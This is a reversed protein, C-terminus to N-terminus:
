AWIHQLLWLLRVVLLQDHHRCGQICTRPAEQLWLLRATHQRGRCAHVVALGQRLLLLLLGCVRVRETLQAPCDTPKVRQWWLAGHQGWLWRQCIAHHEPLLQWRGWLGAKHWLAWWRPTLQHHVAVCSDCSCRTAELHGRGLLGHHLLLRQGKAVLLLLGQLGWVLLWQHGGPLLHGHPVLLLLLLLCLLLSHHGVQHWLLRQQGLVQWM